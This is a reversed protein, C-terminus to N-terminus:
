LLNLCKNRMFVFALKNDTTFTSLIHGNSFVNQIVLCIYVTERSLIHSSCTITFCLLFKENKFSSNCKLSIRVPLIDDQSLTNIIPISNSSGTGNVICLSEKNYIKFNAIKAQQYRCKTKFKLLLPLCYVSNHSDPLEFDIGYHMEPETNYGYKFQYSKYGEINFRHYNELSFQSSDIYTDVRFKTQSIDVIFFPLIDLFIKIGIEWFANNSFVDQPFVIFHIAILAICLLVYSYNFLYVIKKIM